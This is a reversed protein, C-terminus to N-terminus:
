ISLSIHERQITQTGVEFLTEDPHLELVVLADGDVTEDV